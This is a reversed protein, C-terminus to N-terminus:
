AHDFRARLARTNGPAIGADAGAAEVAALPMPHAPHRASDVAVVAASAPATTDEGFEERLHVRAEAATARVIVGATGVNKLNLASLGVRAAVQAGSRALEGADEGYRHEVLEATTNGVATGVTMAAEDMAEWIDGFAAATSLAVHKVARGTATEGAAKVKAGWESQEGVRVLARGLGRAMETVTEAIASTVTVAAGSMVRVREMNVRAEESVVMEKGPEVGRLYGKLGEGASSIGSGVYEAGVRLGASTWRGAVLIGHALMEAAESRSPLSGLLSASSSSSGGAGASAVVATSGGGVVSAVGAIAAGSGLVVRRARGGGGGGGEEEEEEPGHAAAPASPVPPRAAPSEDSLSSFSAEAAVPEGTARDLIQTFRSLTRFFVAASADDRGSSITPTLVFCARRAELPFVLSARVRMVPQNVLPYTWDEVMLWTVMEEGDASGEAAASGRQKAPAMLVQAAGARREVVVGEEVRTLEVRDYRALLTAEVASPSAPVHASSSSAAGAARPPAASSQAAALRILEEASLM